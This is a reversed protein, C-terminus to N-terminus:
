SLAKGTLMLAELVQASPRESDWNSEGYDKWGRGAKSKGEAKIRQDAARKALVDAGIGYPPDTVVADVGSLHPLVDMCDACYLKIGDREWDPRM